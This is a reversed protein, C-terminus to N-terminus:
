REGGTVAVVWPRPKLWKGASFFPEPSTARPDPPPTWYTIKTRETIIPEVDAFRDRAGKWHAPPKAPLMPSTPDYPEQPKPVHRPAPKHTPDAALKAKRPICLPALIAGPPCRDRVYYRRRLRSGKLGPEEVYGVQGRECFRRLVTSSDSFRDPPIELKCAGGPQEALWDLLAVARAALCTM